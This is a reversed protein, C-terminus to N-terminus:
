VEILRVFTAEPHSSPHPSFADDDRDRTVAANPEGLVYYLFSYLYQPPKRESEVEDVVDIVVVWYCNVNSGLRVVLEIKEFHSGSIDDTAM